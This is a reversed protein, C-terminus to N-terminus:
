RDEGCRHDPDALDELVRRLSRQRWLGHRGHRGCTARGAADVESAAAGSALNAGSGPPPAALGGGDGATLQGLLEMITSAQRVLTKQEAGALRENALLAKQSAQVVQLRQILLDFAQSSSAEARPGSSLLERFGSIIAQQESMLAALQMSAGPLEVDSADRGNGHSQPPRKKRSLFSFSSRSSPRSM